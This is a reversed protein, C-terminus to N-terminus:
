LSINYIYNKNNYVISWNCDIPEKTLVYRIQKLKLINEKKKCDESSFFNEVSQKDGTFYITGLPEKGSIPKIATSVLLEAMIKEGSPLNKIFLLAKYDDKDISKYLQSQEPLKYYAKFTLFFVLVILILITIFKIIKEKNNKEFYNKVPKIIFYLGIASLFPLGLAFYYLNRQYPSLFSIEFLRYNAISVLLIIPWLIYILYKKTYEKKFLIISIGFFALIFGIPSYIEFFSNRFEAVGWGYKFQLANTLHQLVSNWSLNFIIKYFLIGVIPIILFLSFFKFEKKLYNFNFLSYVFLIPIAFLVSVAHTPLLFAMIALSYLIYKKNQKEIGETFFYIYLFIFPLAFTLPTFFWIGTLNSNSKISAFFIVSFLAIWFNSNTKRYVVYFLTLASIVAWFAPLFKYILLINSLISLALLFLDFGLEIQNFNGSQVDIANAIHKWEDIHYPFPYSFHIAYVLFFIFVLTCILIITQGRKM